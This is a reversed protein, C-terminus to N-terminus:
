EGESKELHTHADISIDLVTYRKGAYLLLKHKPDLYTIHVPLGHWWRVKYNVAKLQKVIDPDLPLTTM